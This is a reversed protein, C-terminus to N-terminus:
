APLTAVGYRAFRSDRTVVTLGELTAQAVLMRDFPDNHHRPLSGAAYAHTLSIPLPQFGEREVHDLFRRPARLKGTSEKIAIEWVSAASVFIDPENSIAARAENSLAPNDELWWLLAHTDLLLNM